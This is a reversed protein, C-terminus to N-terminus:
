QQIIKYDAPIQFLDPSPEDRSIAKMETTYRNGSRPDISKSLVGIGLERSFWTEHIVTIDRDNGQRGAPIVQTIRTGEVYLGEMTQPPLKEVAPRPLPAPYVPPSSDSAAPSGSVTGPASTPQPLPAVPHITAVHATKMRPIIFIKQGTVPDFITVSIPEAPNQGTAEDGPPYIEMRTRGQSDRAGFERHMDTVTTGDALAQLRTTIYQASYPLNPTGRTVGASRSGVFFGAGEQCVAVPTLLALSFASISLFAPSFRQLLM